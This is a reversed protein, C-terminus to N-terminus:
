DTMVKLAGEGEVRDGWRVVWDKDFFLIECPDVRGLVGVGVRFGDEEVKRLVCVVLACYLCDEVL